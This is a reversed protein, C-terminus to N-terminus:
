CLEDDLCDTGFRAGNAALTTIVEEGGRSYALDFPTRSDYAQANINCDKVGLLLRVLSVNGCLSANHLVTRGTKGDTVNVDCGSELLMKVITMHNNIAAIHLSTLGEYNRISLDQCGHPLSHPSLLEKVCDLYGYKCAIHLPTDGNRDRPKLDACACVLGRVIISQNTIVALHLPTQFLYNPMNLSDSLLCHSILYWALDVDQQIIAVHLIGDGDNNQEFVSKNTLDFDCLDCTDDDSSMEMAAFGTSLRQITMYNPSPQCRIRSFDVLTTPYCEVPM